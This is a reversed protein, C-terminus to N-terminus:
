PYLYYRFLFRSYVQLYITIVLSLRYVTPTQSYWINLILTDTNTDISPSTGTCTDTHTYINVYNNTKEISEAEITSKFFNDYLTVLIRMLTLNKNLKKVKTM